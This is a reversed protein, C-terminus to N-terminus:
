FGKKPEEAAATKLQEPMQVAIFENNGNFVLKAAEQIATPTLQQVYKEYHIFRDPDGGILKLQLLQEAWANNDKISTKYQEIWQRKVKNLYTTDPGKQAMESFEKKFAKILTDVKQPGCPLQVVFSYNAYPYKEMQAFTGGGYIGQIKERLEEIVRINLVESLAETKLQLDESYPAEGNYFALILSKEEKGKNVTLVKNGAVPRVKNDVFTFKKGTAPLSAIYKEILPKIEAEKFSGVFVFNMGSCDSFHEKYISLVRDVNVQDFFASNPVMMPALPNQNYLVKSLTDIFAAQPNAGIAAYQSKNRQIFAKFLATDRRPATCYLYTLQLMTELDKVSSSGKMGDSISSFLPSVSVTKGALAKRLDTPSFDGIGMAGVVQLAFEANYKDALGYENKGGQRTAGMVIQDNKFDTPKITVTVGNSLTYETTGLLANKTINVV